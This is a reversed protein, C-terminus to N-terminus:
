HLLGRSPARGPTFTGALLDAMQLLLVRLREQVPYPMGITQTQFNLRRLAGASSPGGLM